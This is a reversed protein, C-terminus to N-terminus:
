LEATFGVGGLRYAEGLSLALPGQVIPGTCHGAALLAPKKMALYSIVQEMRERPAGLLHLGGILGALRETKTLKQGYEVINEVGAHGCGTIALLGKSSLAYLAIDDNMNDEVLRGNELRLMGWTHSSGWERPIEGSVILRDTIHVPERSLLFRAGMDELESRTFPLGIDRLVGGLARIRAYAPVFLDPHAIVTLPEGGRLELFKKLGGTHDYHRHSLVLFDITSPDFGAVRLNHELAIGLSGTDFLVRVGSELDEVLAAFGYEAIMRTPLPAANDVLVTVRVSGTPAM